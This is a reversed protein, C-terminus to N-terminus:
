LLTVGLINHHAKAIQRPTKKICLVEWLHLLARPALRSDADMGLIAKVSQKYYEQFQTLRKDYLDLPDGYVRKWAANLAGVKRQKNNKTTLVTLRLNFEQGAELAVEETRDTCNDAIVIVDLEIGKPLIQDGLGALCDRISKEENHAPIFAVIRPRMYTNRIGPVKGKKEELLPNDELWRLQPQKKASVSSINALM